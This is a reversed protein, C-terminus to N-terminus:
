LYGVARFTNATHLTFFGAHGSILLDVFISMYNERCNWATNARMMADDLINIAIGDSRQKRPSIIRLEM